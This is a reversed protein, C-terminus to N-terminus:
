RPYEEEPDPSADYIPQAEEPGRDYVTMMEAEIQDQRLDDACSGCIGGKIVTIDGCRGCAGFTNYAQQKRRRRAM